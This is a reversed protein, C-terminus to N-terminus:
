TEKKCAYVDHLFTRITIRQDGAGNSQLLDNICKELQNSLVSEPLESASFKRTKHLGLETMCSDCTFPLSKWIDDVNPRCASHVEMECLHCIITKKNLQIKLASLMHAIDYTKNSLQEM